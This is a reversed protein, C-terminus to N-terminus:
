PPFAKLSHSPHFSWAQFLPLHSGTALLRSRGLPLWRAIGPLAIFLRKTARQHLAHIVSCVLLSDFFTSSNMFLPVTFIAVPAYRKTSLVRLKRSILQYESM